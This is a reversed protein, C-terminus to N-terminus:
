QKYVKLTEVTVGDTYKVIYIGKPLEKASITTYPGTLTVEKVMRGTIDVVLVQANDMANGAVQITFADGVPNPLIKIGREVTAVGTTCGPTTFIRTIWPSFAGCKNRIHAYYLTCPELGTVSGTTSAATEWIGTAPPTPLTNVYWEYGTTTMTKPWRLTATTPMLDNVYIAHVTDCSLGPSGTSFPISTTWSSFSTACKARVHAWYITASTLSTASTNTGSTILTGSAPPTNSTTVAWEHGVYGPGTVWSFSGASMSIGTINVSSPTPCTASSIINVTYDHTEGVTAIGGASPPTPCSPIIPPDEDTMAVVRMRHTGPMATAPLAIVFNTPGTTSFMGGWNYEGIDNFSFNDNFDIFIQVGAGIAPTGLTTTATVTYTSGANLTVSMSSHDVYATGSCGTGLDSIATGSEGNLTFDNIAGRIGCGMSYSPMCYQAFVNTHVLAICMALGTLYRSPIFKM